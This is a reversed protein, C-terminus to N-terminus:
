PIGESLTRTEGANEEVTLYAWAGLELRGTLLWRSGGPAALLAWPLGTSALLAWSVWKLHWIHLNTSSDNMKRLEAGLSSRLKGLM